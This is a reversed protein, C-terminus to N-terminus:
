KLRAKAKLGISAPPSIADQRFLRRGGAGFDREHLKKEENEGTEARAEDVGEGAAAGEQGKGDSIAAPGAPSRRWRSRSWRGTGPAPPSSRRRDGCGPSIAAFIRADVPLSSAIMESTPPKKPATSSSDVAPATKRARQHGEQQQARGQNEGGAHDHRFLRFLLKEASGAHQDRLTEDRDVAAIEAAADAYQHQRRQRKVPQLSMTSIFLRFISSAESIFAVAVATKRNEPRMWQSSAITRDAPEIAPPKAPAWAPERM